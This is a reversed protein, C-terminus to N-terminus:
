EVPLHRNVVFSDRPVEYRGEYCWRFETTFDMGEVENVCYVCVKDGQSSMFLYFRRDSRIINCLTCVFYLFMPLGRRPGDDPDNDPDDDDDDSEGGPRGAQSGVLGARLQSM